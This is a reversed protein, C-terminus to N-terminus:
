EVNEELVVSNSSENDISAKSNVRGMVDTMKSTLWLAVAKEALQLGDDILPAEESSFHQLVFDSLPMEKCAESYIGIRLRPIAKTGLTEIIHFMGKQGGASGSPRIRVTGVPLAVDDYAILIQAMTLPCDSLFAALADGSLNMYTKPKLFYLSKQERVAHWLDFAGNQKKLAAGHTQILRDLLLFGANHRTETYNRGPNGLGVILRKEM